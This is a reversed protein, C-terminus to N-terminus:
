NLLDDLTKHAENLKAKDLARQRAERREQEQRAAEQAQSRRAEVAAAAEAEIEARRSAISSPSASEVIEEAPEVAATSPSADGLSGGAADADRTLTKGVEFTEVESAELASPEVVALENVNPASTRSNLWWAFVVLLLVAVGGLVRILGASSVPEQPLSGSEIKPPSSPSATVPEAKSVLDPSPVSSPEPVSVAPVADAHIATVEARPEEDNAETSSTDEVPVEAM